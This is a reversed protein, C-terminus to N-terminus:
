QKLKKIESQLGVIVSQQDDLRKQQAITYLTLEEIKQLLKIQFEEIIVGNETMDRASQIEPLHKNELIYKEVESLNPLRYDSEFVFDATPSNTVKISKSQVQGGNSVAFWVAGSHHLRFWGNVNDLHWPNNGAAGLLKIEGGESLSGPSASVAVESKTNISFREYGDTFIRFRNNSNDLLWDTGNNLESKLRLRGGSLSGSEVIVPFLTLDNRNLKMQTGGHGNGVNSELRWQFARSSENTVTGLDQAQIQTSFAGITFIVAIVISLNKM